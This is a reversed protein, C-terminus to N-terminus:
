TDKNDVFDTYLVMLLTVVTVSFENFLEIRNKFRTHYPKFQGNYILMLLNMYMVVMIQLFSVEQMYFSLM